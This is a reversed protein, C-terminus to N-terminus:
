RDDGDTSIPNYMRERDLSTAQGHGPLVVRDGDLAFLKEISKKLTEFDGRYGDCRGYSDRMLTDGVFLTDGFDYCVGGESHGPTWLVDCEGVSLSLREGGKLRVDPEFGGVADMGFEASFNLHPDDIMVVDSEHMFIQANTERALDAAGCIHDFHGHTILIEKLRYGSAELAGAIALGEAGPDVAAAAKTEEDTLIYCNTGVPGVMLRAIKM